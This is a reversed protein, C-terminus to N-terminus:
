AAASTKRRRLDDIRKVEAALRKAIDALKHSSKVYAVLTRAITEANDKEFNCVADAGDADELAKQTKALKAHLGELEEADIQVKRKPPKADVKAKTAAEYRRKTTTPHNILSRQNEALTARWAEIAPRNDACWVVHNRTAGDLDRAWQHADLWQSFARIYTAGLPQNTGARRMSKLRGVAIGEGIAIWDRWQQGGKIREAAAAAETELRTEDETAVDPALEEIHSM